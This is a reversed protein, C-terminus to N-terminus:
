EKVELLALIEGIVKNEKLGQPVRLVLAEVREEQDLTEQYEQLDPKEEPAKNERIEKKEM